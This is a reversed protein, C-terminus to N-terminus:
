GLAFGFSRATAFGPLIAGDPDSLSLNKAVSANATHKNTKHSLNNLDFLHFIVPFAVSFSGASFTALCRRLPTSTAFPIPSTGSSAKSM